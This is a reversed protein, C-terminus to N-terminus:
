QAAVVQLSTLADQRCLWALVEVTLLDLTARKESLAQLFASVEPDGAVAQQEALLADRRDLLTRVESLLQEPGLGQTSAQADRVAAQMREGLDHAGPFAALLGGVSGLPTFQDDVRSRWVLRLTAELTSLSRGFDGYTELAIGLGDEDQAEIMSEAAESADALCKDVAARNQAEAKADLRVALAVLASLKQTQRAADAFRQLTRGAKEGLRVGAAASELSPALRELEPLLDSM